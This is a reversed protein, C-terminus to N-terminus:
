SKFARQALTNARRVEFASAKSLGPVGTLHKGQRTPSARRAGARLHQVSPDLVQRLWHIQRWGKWKTRERLVGSELLRRGLQREARLGATGGGQQPGHGGYAAARGRPFVRRLNPVPLKKQLLAGDQAAGHVLHLVLTRLLRPLSLVAWASGM